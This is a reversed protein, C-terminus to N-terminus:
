GSADAVLIAGGICCCCCCCTLSLLLIYSCFYIVGMFNGAKILYADACQVSPISYAFTLGIIWWVLNAIGLGSSLLYSSCKFFGAVEKHSHIIRNAIMHMGVNGITICSLIFAFFYWDAYRKGVNM